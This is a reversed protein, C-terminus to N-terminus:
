IFIFNFIKGKKLHHVKQHVKFQLDNIVVRMKTVFWEKVSEKKSQTSFNKSIYDINPIYSKYMFSYIDKLDETDKEISPLINGIKEKIPKLSEEYSNNQKQEELFNIFKEKQEKVMNLRQTLNHIQIKLDSEEESLKLIKEEIENFASKRKELDVELEKVKKSKLEKSGSITQQLIEIIKRFEPDERNIPGLNKVVTEHQESDLYQLSTFVKTMEQIIENTNREDKVKPEYIKEQEFIKHKIIFPIIATAIKEIQEKSFNNAHESCLKLFNTTYDIINEDELVLVASILEKFLKLEEGEPFQEIVKKILSLLANSQYFVEAFSLFSSNTDSSIDKVESQFEEIWRKWIDARKYKHHLNSQEELKMLVLKKSRSIKTHSSIHLTASINEEIQDMSEGKEISKVIEDLQNESFGSIYYLQQFLEENQQYDYKLEQFKQIIMMSKVWLTRKKMNIMGNSFNDKNGDGIFTLDQLYVGIFPICPSNTEFCLRVSARYAAGNKNNFLKGIEEIKNEKKENIGIHGKKKLNIIPVSKLAAFIARSTFFNNKQQLNEMLSVYRSLRKTREKSSDCTIISYVIWTSLTNFRQTIRTINPAGNEGDIVKNWNQNEFEQPPISGLLYHDVLCIQEALTEVKMTSFHKKVILNLNYSLSPPKPYSQIEATLYEKVKQPNRLRSIFSNMKEFLKPDNFEDFIPKRMKLWFILINSIKEPTVRDGKQIATDLRNSLLNFIDEYTCFSRYSMFFCNM